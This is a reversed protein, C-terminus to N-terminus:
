AHPTVEPEFEQEEGFLVTFLFNIMTWVLGIPVMAYILVSPIRLINTARGAEAMGAALQAGQWAFYALVGVVVVVVFLEVAKRLSRPFREVLFDIAVHSGHRFASGGGLYVVGLFLALQVEELWVFPNNFFYRMLVGLFTIVTLAVFFSGTIWIDARLVRRLWVPPQRQVVGDGAEATAATAPTM